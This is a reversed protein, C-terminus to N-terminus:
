LHPTQNSIKDMMEFNKHILYYFPKIFQNFINNNIRKIDQIEFLRLRVFNTNSFVSFPIINYHISFDNNGVLPNIGNIIVKLPNELILITKRKIDLDLVEADDENISSNILYDITEKNIVSSLYSFEDNKLNEVNGYYLFNGVINYSTYNLIVEVKDNVYFIGFPTQFRKPIQMNKNKM